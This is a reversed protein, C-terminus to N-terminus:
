RLVYFQRKKYYASIISINQIYYFYKPVLKSLLNTHISFTQILRCCTNYLLTKLCWLLNQSFFALIKLITDILFYLNGLTRDFLSIAIDRFVIKSGLSGTSFNYRFFHDAFIFLMLPKMLFFYNKLSSSFSKLYSIRFGWRAQM